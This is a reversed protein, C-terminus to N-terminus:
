ESLARRARDAYASEPWRAIFREARARALDVRGLANLADIAIAEREPALRGHAFMQAHEECALLAVEPEHRSLARRARLLVAGEQLELESASPPPAEITESAHTRAVHRPAPAAEPLPALPEVAAPLAPPTPTPLPAIAVVPVVVVPAIDPPTPTAGLQWWAIGGLSVIVVTALALKPALGRWLSPPAPPSALANTAVRDVDVPPLDRRAAGFLSDLDEDPKNM